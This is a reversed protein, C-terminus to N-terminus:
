LTLLSVGAAGLLREEVPPVPKVGLLREIRYRHFAGLLTRAPLIRREDAGYLRRDLARLRHWPVGPKAHHANHYPFNLLLLNLAPWRSSLLNSYTNADEYRRDKEVPAGFPADYGDLLVLDFTHHFSDFFRIAVLAAVFACGYLLLAVPSIVLLLAGAALRSAVIAIIAVVRGRRTGGAVTFPLRIAHTRLWLELAPFHMWELALVTRRVPPSAAALARRFDVTIPDARDLHHHLHKQRLMEFGAYGAGTLWTLTTGLAAHWRRSVFLTEHMCEHVLYTALLLTHVVLAVGLVRGALGGRILLLVGGAHGLLTYALAFTNAAMGDRYKFATM